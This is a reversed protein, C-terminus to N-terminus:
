QTLSNVAITGDASLKININDAPNNTNKVLLGYWDSNIKHLTGAYVDKYTCHMVTANPEKFLFTALQTKNSSTTDTFPVSTHVYKIADALKKTEREFVEYVVYITEEFYEGTPSIGFLSFGTQDSDLVLGTYPKYGHNVYSYVLFGSGKIDRIDITSKIYIPIQFSKSNYIDLSILNDKYAAINNLNAKKHEPTNDTYIVIPELHFFLQISVVSGDNPDITIKKLQTVASDTTCIGSYNGDTNYNLLVRTNEDDEMTVQGVFRAGNLDSAGILAKWDAEFQDLKAKRDADTGSLDIEQLIPNLYAENLYGASNIFNDLTDNVNEAISCTHPSTKTIDVEYAYLYSDAIYRGEMSFCTFYLKWASGSDLKYILTCLKGETQDIKFLVDVNDSLLKQYTEEDVETTDPTLIIPKRAGENLMDSDVKNSTGVTIVTKEFYVGGYIIFVTNNVLDDTIKIGLIAVDTNGMIYGVGSYADNIICTVAMGNVNEIGAAKAKEIYNTINKVNQANAEPTDETSIPIPNNLYVSEQLGTIINDLRKNNEDYVAKTSTVPYVETTQGEVPGKKIIKEIKGM